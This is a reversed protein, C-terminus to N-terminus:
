DPLEQTTPTDGEVLVSGQAVTDPEGDPAWWKLVYVYPKNADLDYTDSRGLTLTIDGLAVDTDIVTFEVKESTEYPGAYIQAEFTYGTLDRAAGTDDTFSFTESFRKGRYVQIDYTAVTPEPRKAGQTDITPFVRIPTSTDDVERDLYVPVLRGTKKSVRRLTFQEVRNLGVNMAEAMEEYHATLAQIMAMLQSYRQSRPVRVGEVTVIDIDYAASTALVWMAEIKAKLVILFAETPPINAYSLPPYRNHNHFGLATEVYYTVQADTFLTDRHGEVVLIDTSPLAAALTIIGFTYDVTYDVDLVLVTKAGTSANKRYVTLTGPVINETQLRVKNEPAETFVEQFLSRFDALESKTRSILSTKSM